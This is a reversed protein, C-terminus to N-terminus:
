IVELTQLTLWVGMIALALVGVVSWGVVFMGPRYRRQPIYKMCVYLNLGFIVPALLLSMTASLMVLFVPEPLFGIFVIASVFLGLMAAVWASRETWWPREVRPKFIASSAASFARPYGDYCAFFTSFLAAFAGALFLPFMWQGVTRTFIESIILMTEAGEPVIGRPSLIMAGLMLYMSAIVFSVIHGIRFDYLTARYWSDAYERYQEPTDEVAEPGLAERIKVMGRGKAKTWLSAWVSLDIGTPLWGLMGSVLLTSGVPVAAIFFHSFAEIRLGVVSFVIITAVILVGALIKTVAELGRYRGTLLIAIAVLSILASYAVLPVGGWVAWLVTAAASVMGAMGAIGLVISGVAIIWVPWMRPGPVKSYGDIVTEGTAATYRMALEFGQWKLLYALPLLWLLVFEFSAGAVPALVLHSTGIGSMAVILGPGLYRIARAGKLDLPQELEEHLERLRTERDPTEIAV